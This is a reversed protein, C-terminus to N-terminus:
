KGRSPHWEIIRVPTPNWGSCPNFQQPCNSIVVLVDKEARLDVYDGPESLGDVIETSGDPRVPVNMFFNINAPIDRPEMGHARLATIFNTRCSPTGKIGYRMRNVETSCCGGITDHHGVTDEVVTMLVEGLDSVLKFGKGVYVSRNIKITNAANYRNEHNEADYVLFDVAQQGELDIIRLHDGKALKCTFPGPEVVRDSIATGPFQLAAGLKQPGVRAKAEAARRLSKEREKAALARAHAAREEDKVHDGELLIGAM